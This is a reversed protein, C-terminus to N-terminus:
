ASQQVTHRYLRAIVGVHRRETLHPLATTFSIMINDHHCQSRTDAAANDNIFLDDGASMAQTSLNSM